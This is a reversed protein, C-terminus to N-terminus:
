FMKLQDPNYRFRRRSRGVAANSPEEEEEDVLSTVTIETESEQEDEEPQLQSRDISEFRDVWGPSEQPKPLLDETEYRDRRARELSAINSNPNTARLEGEGDGTGRKRRKRSRKVDLPHPPRRKILVGGYIVKLRLVQFTYGNGMKYAKKIQKNAFEAFGNTTPIEFRGKFDIYNLISARWDTITNPINAFPYEWKEKYIKEYKARFDKVFNIARELWLDTLEEARQRNTLQLIDSFDKVLYYAVALDPVDKLWKMVVDYESPLLKGTKKDKPHEKSLRRYNKLLLEERRMYKSCETPTMCGRVVEMVKKLATSLLNHVHYRDVVIQAKKLLLRVVYRYPAWMDITVVEVSDRDPLQLLREAIGRLKNDPLLDIVRRHEPSSIVCRPEKKNKPYVEDIALWRPTEVPKIKELQKARATFINRIILEHVGTEEAIQSFNRFISFSEQEIYKILRTTFSYRKHSGPLPQQITKRKDCSPNNCRKRQLRYYIRTRKNRIPLDRVYTPEIFGSFKFKSADEGCNCTGEIETTVEALIIIDHDTEKYKITKWGPLNIVEGECWLGGLEELGQLRVWAAAKPRRQKKLKPPKLRPLPM